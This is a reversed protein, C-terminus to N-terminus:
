KREAGMIKLQEPVEELVQTIEEMDTPMRNELAQELEM